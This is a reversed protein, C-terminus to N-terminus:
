YPVGDHVNFALVAGAINEPGITVADELVHAEGHEYPLTGCRGTFDEGSGDLVVVATGHHAAARKAFAQYLLGEEEGVLGADAESHGTVVSRRASADLLGIGGRVIIGLVDVAAVVVALDERRVADAQIGGIDVM